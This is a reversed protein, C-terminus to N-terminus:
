QDSLTLTEIARVEARVALEKVSPDAAAPQAFALSATMCVAKLILIHRM